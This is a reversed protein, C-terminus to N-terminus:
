SRSFSCSRRAFSAPPTATIRTPPAVSVSTLSRLSRTSSAAHADRALRSVTTQWTDQHCFFDEIRFLGDPDPVGPGAALRGELDEPGKILARSLRRALFEYFEHPEITTYAADPGAILRIPGLYRWRQGLGDLLGQTRRDFGFVRLLLLTLAARRPAARRRLRLGWSVLLKYGAFGALAGLARAGNAFSVVTSTNITVKVSIIITSISRRPNPGVLRPQTYSISCSTRQTGSSRM